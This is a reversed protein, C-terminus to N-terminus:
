RSSLGSRPQAASHVGLRLLKWPGGRGATMASIPILFNETFLESSGVTLALFGIAFALAGLLPNGTAEQVVLRAFVGVRIDVGGVAGTALLEPWDRGLRQEGEDVTREFTREVQQTM